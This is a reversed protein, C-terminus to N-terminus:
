GMKDITKSLVRLIPLRDKNIETMKAIPQVDKDQSHYFLRRDPDVSFLTMVSSVVVTGPTMNFILQVNDNNQEREDLKRDLTEFCNRYNNYNCPDTFEITLNDIAALEKEDLSDRGNDKMLIYKSFSKIVVRLLNEVQEQTPKSGRIDDCAAKISDELEFQIKSIKINGISNIPTSEKENSKNEDMKSDKDKENEKWEDIKDVADQKL